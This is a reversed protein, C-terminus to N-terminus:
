CVNRLTNLPLLKLKPHVKWVINEKTTHIVKKDTTSTPTLQYVISMQRTERAMSQKRSNLYEKSVRTVAAYTTGLSM